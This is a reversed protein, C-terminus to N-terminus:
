VEKRKKQLSIQYKLADEAYKDNIKNLDLQLKDRSTIYIVSKAANNRVYWNHSKLGKTLYTLVDKKKYNRLAIAAIAAYEWVDNEHEIFEYFIPVVKEYIVNSFYRIAAIRAEKPEDNSALINYIIEKCDIKRYSFYNICAVKYNENYNGIEKNLMEVLENIDGRYKLLGDTILKHNHSINLNNMKALAEKLCDINGMAYIAKLANERLYVSESTTCEILYDVIKNKGDDYIYPHLSLFYVFYTQKVIEEKQYISLNKVFVRKLNKLYTTQNNPDMKEIVKTFAIFYNTKKLLQMMMNIHNISVRKKDELDILEKLKKEIKKRRISSIKHCIICGISFIIISLFFVLYIGIIYKEVISM